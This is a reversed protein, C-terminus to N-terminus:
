QPQSVATAHLSSVRSASRVGPRAAITAVKTRSAIKANTVTAQRAKLPTAVSTLGSLWPSTSATSPLSTRPLVKPLSTIRATSLEAAADVWVVMRGVARVTRDIAAWRAIGRCKAVICGRKWVGVVDVMAM